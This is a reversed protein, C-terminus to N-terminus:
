CSDNNMWNWFIMSLEAVDNSGLEEHILSVVGDTDLLNEDEIKYTFCDEVNDQIMEWLGDRDLSIEARIM